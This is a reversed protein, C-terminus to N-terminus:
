AAGRDSEAGVPEPPPAGTEARRPLGFHLLLLAAAVILLSTLVAPDYTKWTDAIWGGIAPGSLGAVGYGLFCVPYLRPFERVGFYEVISSAYVVFCGGFGAGCFFLAALVVGSALNGILLPLLSLGLFGLSLLVTARSRLRDHVQGWLVRGAANGAAFLSIALTTMSEALGLSLALPKLNGITLLGAFTGAFMGACLHWFPRAPWGSSGAPAGPARARAEAAEPESLLLAGLLALTGMALGIFRFVDLVGMGATDMLYRVLYSTIVAGSGFGAVTVGTVLGRHHPFWRMAVTLPCVYGFGMGAGTVGGISALLWLYDGRSFSAGIYGAAFLVAGICATRRPGIRPMLRGAPIMSLAFVAITLGFISAAQSTTLGFGARLSPIYASWAYIGGLVIQILVGAWLVVWRM